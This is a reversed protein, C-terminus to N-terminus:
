VYTQIEALQMNHKKALKKLYSKEQEKLKNEYQKVGQEVYAAGKTLLNYFAEAIKRAGAKVAIKSDRKAKLRRM